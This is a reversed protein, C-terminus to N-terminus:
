HGWLSSVPAAWLKDGLPVIESGDHLVVGMVFDDGALQSLKNLGKLDKATLTASAKVEIAVMRGAVDELVFDVENQDADRYHMIRYRRDSVAAHKVLEGYVFTELVNGFRTRDRSVEDAGLEILTALLGSDVFQMKPSKVLRKLRNRAWADVRNLLYMQEFIGVYKATTKSDLNVAAGLGSYNSVSGATQAIANLLRPLEDLKDITAIDRVDRQILADIYQQAWANRRRDSDRAIAEPYGGRLVTRVLQAGMVPQETSLLAGQFAQDIWNGHSGAIESQSLPLLTLTEMRGALSDAVTPLTMLNASGTLLFRGARRDEDISKKIALLLDPARQVEDIVARDLERIWAVPDQRAALQVMPDDLTLYRLGQDQAIQRVLTTKGAQRPGSVLVAPTDAFAEDLKSQIARPYKNM